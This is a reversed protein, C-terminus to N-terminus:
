ENEIKNEKNKLQNLLTGYKISLDSYDSQSKYLQETLEMNKTFLLISCCVLGFMIFFCVIFVCM